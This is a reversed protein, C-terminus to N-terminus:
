SHFIKTDKLFELIAIVGLWATICISIYSFNRFSAPQTAKDIKPMRPGLGFEGRRIGNVTIFLWVLSCLGNGIGYSM